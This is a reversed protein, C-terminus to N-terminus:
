LSRLSYPETERWFGGWSVRPRRAEEGSTLLRGPEAQDGVAYDDETWEWINGALDEV